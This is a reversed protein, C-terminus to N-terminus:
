LVFPDEIGRKTSLASVRNEDFCMQKAFWNM